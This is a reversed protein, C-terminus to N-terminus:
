CPSEPDHIKEIQKPTEGSLAYPCFLGNERRWWRNSRDLVEPLGSCAGKDVFREASGGQSEFRDRTDDHVRAEVAM